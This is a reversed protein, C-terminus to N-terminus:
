PNHLPEVSLVAFFPRDASKGASRKNMWDLLFDPLVDTQYGELRRYSSDGNEDVNIWTDYRRNNLEFGFWDEFGCRRERPIIRMRPDRGTVEGDSERNGAFQWKGIYRTQYDNERLVQVITPHDAQFSSDHAPVTSDHPYQGTSHGVSRLAFRLEPSQLPSIPGRMQWGTWTQPAREQSKDGDSGGRKVVM